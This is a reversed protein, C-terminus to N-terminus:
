LQIKITTKPALDGVEGGVGACVGCMGDCVSSCECVCVVCVLYM